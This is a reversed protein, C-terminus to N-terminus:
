AGQWTATGWEGTGWTSESVPILGLGAYAWLSLVQEWRTGTIRHRIGQVHFTGLMPGGGDDWRIAHQDGLEVDLWRELDADSWSPDLESKVDDVRNTRESLQDLRLTVAATVAADSQVTLDFRQYTRLGYRLISPEDESTIASGGTRAMSVRNQIDDLDQGTGFGTPCFTFAAAGEGNSWTARTANWRPHSSGVLPPIWWKPRRMTFIGERDVLLDTGADGEVTSMAEDLLNRAFNSSQHTVAGSTDASTGIDTFLDPIEAKDIIRLVRAHTLDGGGELSGEPLDVSGLDAMRDVCLAKVRFAGVPDWEDIIKRVTGRYLPIQEGSGHLVTARIRIEQALDVPSTPRFSWRGGPARWALVMEATGSTNRSKGDKRGRITSLSELECGELEVFTPEYGSWTSTADSWESVDWVMEGAGTGRLGLEVHVAIREPWSARSPM